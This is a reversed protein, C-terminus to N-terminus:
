TQRLHQQIRNTGCSAHGAANLPKNGFNLVNPFRNGTVNYTPLYQNLIADRTDIPMESTEFSDKTVLHICIDM